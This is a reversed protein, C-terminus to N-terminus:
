YDIVWSFSALHVMGSLCTHRIIMVYFFSINVLLSDFSTSTLQVMCSHGFDTHQVHHGQLSRM